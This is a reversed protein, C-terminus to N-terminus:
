SFPCSGQSLCLGHSLPLYTPGSFCIFPPFVHFSYTVVPHCTPLLFSVPYTGSPTVPSLGSPGPSPTPTANSIPLLHASYTPTPGLPHPNAHDHYWWRQQHCCGGWWLSQWWRWGVVQMLSVVVVEGGADVIAGVAGSGADIVHGRDGTNVICGGSVNVVWWRGGGWWVQMLSTGVVVVVVMGGHHHGGAGARRRGEIVGGVNIYYKM